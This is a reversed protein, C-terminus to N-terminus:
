RPPIMKCKQWNLVKEPFNQTGFGGSDCYSIMDERRRNKVFLDIQAIICNIRAIAM